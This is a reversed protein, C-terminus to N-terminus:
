DYSQQIIELTEIKIILEYVIFGSSIILSINTLLFIRRLYINRVYLPYSNLYFVNLSHSCKCKDDYKKIRFENIEVMSNYYLHQKTCYNHFFFSTDCYCKIARNSLYCIDTFKCFKNSNSECPYENCFEGKYPPYCDCQNPGVCFGQGNCDNRCHFENCNKGKYGYRCKCQSINNNNIQNNDKRIVQCIINQYCPHNKQKKELYVTSLINLRLVNDRVIKSYIDIADLAVDQYLILYGYSINM